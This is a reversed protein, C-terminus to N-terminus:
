VSCSRANGRETEMTKLLETLYIGLAAITVAYWLATAPYTVRESSSAKVPLKFFPYFINFDAEKCINETHEV